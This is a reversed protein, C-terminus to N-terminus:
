VTCSPQIDGTHLSTQINKREGGDEVELQKHTKKAM